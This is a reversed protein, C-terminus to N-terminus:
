SAEAQGEEEGSQEAQRLRSRFRFSDGLFELIHARHTLRDIYIKSSQPRFRSWEIPPLVRLLTYFFNQANGHTREKPEVPQKTNAAQEGM